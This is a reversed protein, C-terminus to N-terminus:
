QSTRPRSAEQGLARLSDEIETIAKESKATQAKAEALRADATAQEALRGIEDASRSADDDDDDAKGAASSLKERALSLESPAYEAAGAQEARKVAQEAVALKDRPVPSSSACAAALLALAATALLRMPVFQKSRRVTGM